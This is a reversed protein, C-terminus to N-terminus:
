RSVSPIPFPFSPSLLIFSRSLSLSHLFSPSLSLPLLSPSFFFLCMSLSDYDGVLSFLSLLIILVSVSIEGFSGGGGLVLAMLHAVLRTAEGSSSVSDPVFRLSTAFVSGTKELCFVFGNRDVLPSSLMFLLSHSLFSSSFRVPFNLFSVILGFSLCFFFSFLSLPDM